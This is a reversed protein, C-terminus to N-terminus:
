IKGNLDDEKKKFKIFIPFYKNIFLSIIVSIMSTLIFLILCNFLSNLNILKIILKDIIQLVIIHIGMIVLSNRGFLELLKNKKILLSILYIILIGSFAGTLFLISNGLKLYLMDVRGNYLLNNFFKNNFYISMTNIIFLVIISLFKNYKKICYNKLKYGIYYIFLGFMAIDFWM